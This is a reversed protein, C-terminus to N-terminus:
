ESDSDSTITIADIQRILTEIKEAVAVRSGKIRELEDRLNINERRLQAIVSLLARTKSELISLKENLEADFGANAM